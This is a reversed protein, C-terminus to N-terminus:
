HKDNLGAGTGSLRNKVFNIEDEKSSILKDLKANLAECLIEGVLPGRPVGMDLLYSGDILLDTQSLENLYLLVMRRVKTGPAALCGVIALTEDAQDKFLRYIQSRKFTKSKHGLSLEISKAKLIIEKQHNSMQLRDLAEKLRTKPLRVLLLGLYVVWPEKVEYRDLLREARRIHIRSKHGYKLKEDLFRLGGGLNELLSLSDLRKDSELIHRIEEKIRVGGLGNFLGVSIGRCARYKTKPELHFGLRAAFRAARVIRTPDEIFSFPHLIRILKKQLDEFGNYLDILEGFRLKDPHLCVALSNITFDRRYIDQSLSSAEVVPLAAPFEYYETRATSLDIEKIFSFPSSLSATQFREHSVLLEFKDPYKQVLHKALKIASGEIVFDLDFKEEKSPEVGLITDRVFGGVVYAVMDLEAAEKGISAFLELLSPSISDFRKRFHKQKKAREPDSKSASRPLFEGASESVEGYIPDNVFINKSNAVRGYVAELVNQRTVLGLLKGSKEMVPLRGVDELVMLQQIEDLSAQPAVSIVPRSMFGQVPAHGLRHHMAQDIDRRSVIGVVDEGECVVLGDQGLRLMLRHAEEMRLSPRVTRVPSSMLTQATPQEKIREPLLSQLRSIIADIKGNKVVASAAGPHGGGDFLEMLESVDLCRSDSRSVIHVRDKMHVVCFAADASHVDMLTRAMHAVGDLYRDCRSLAMVIKTGHIEKVICNTMLENLLASQEDSWKPKIFANIQNLDVGFTMLYALSQADMESTGSFTLSGTDEHIGLALLTAEFQNLPMKAQRIRDVLISTASGVKAVVSEESAHQLLGGPDVRHHDFVTIKLSKSKKKLHSLIFKSITEPLRDLHQCDVVYIGTVQSLDLYKSDILPLSSRNLSLYERVGGVIPQNLVLKTGPYLKTVAFQSALADFDTNNHTVVIEMPNKRQKYM